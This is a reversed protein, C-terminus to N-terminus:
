TSELDVLWPSLLESIFSLREHPFLAALSTNAGGCRGVKKKELPLEGTSGKIV